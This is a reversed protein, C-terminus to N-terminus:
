QPTPLPFLASLEPAELRNVAADLTPEILFMEILRTTEFIHRAQDPVNILVLPRQHRRLDLALRSFLGIGASSIYELEALDIIYNLVGQTWLLDIQGQLDYAAMTDLSGRIRIIM